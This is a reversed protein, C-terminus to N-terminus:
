EGRLKLQLEALKVLDEDSLNGMDTQGIKDGKSTHDFQHQNKWGMNSLAFIAGTPRDHFLRKEYGHEVRSRARKIIDSYEPKEEYDDLSQRHAFGLFLVLGTVTYPEPYRDWAKVEEFEIEETKKNVRPQKEFHFEGECYIFYADVVASLEEPNAFIPPRGGNNGIAYKNGIKGIPSDKHRQAPTAKSKIAKKKTNPQAKAM